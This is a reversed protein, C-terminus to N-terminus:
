YIIDIVEHSLYQNGDYYINLSKDAINDGDSDGFLYQLNNNSYLDPGLLDEVEGKSLTSIDYQELFLNILYEKTTLDPDSKFIQSSFIDSNVHAYTNHDLPKFYEVVINFPESVSEVEKAEKFYIILISCANELYLEDDDPAWFTNNSSYIFEFWIKEENEHRFEEMSSTQNYFYYTANTGFFSQMIGKKYGLTDYFNENLYDYVTLVYTDFDEQEGSYMMSRSVLNSNADIYEVDSIEPLDKINMKRLMSSQTSCGILLISLFVIYSILIIHKKM